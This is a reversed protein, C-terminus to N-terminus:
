FGLFMKVEKIYTRSVPVKEGNTLLLNYTSNFWPEIERIMDLNVLYSRHVRKIPSNLLRREFTVLSDGTEYKGKNTVLTTRGDLASIYLIDKISLIIIKENTTIAIKDLNEGLKTSEQYPTRKVENVEALKRLKEVTQAVRDEDFPKLIYDAANLEFATLAYNDYATAFVIQPPHEMANIVKAIDLGSENALQIDLFLVDVNLKDLQSLVELASEAEGVINVGRTRRLLYILEDRALPEDDVIFAKLMM